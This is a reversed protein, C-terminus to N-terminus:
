PSVEPQSASISLRESVPVVKRFLYESWGEDIGNVGVTPKATLQLCTRGDWCNVDFVLYVEGKVPIGYPFTEPPPEAGNLWLGAPAKVCAAKDGPKWNTSM